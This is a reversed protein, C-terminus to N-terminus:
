SEDDKDEPKEEPPVPTVVMGEPVPQVVVCSDTGWIAKALDRWADLKDDEM